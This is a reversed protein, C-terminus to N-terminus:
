NYRFRFYSLLLLVWSLFVVWSILFFLTPGWWLFLIIYLSFISSFGMSMYHLLTFDYEFKEEWFYTSGIICVPLFFVFLLTSFLSNPTILSFFTNWYLFFICLVWLSFAIYNSYRIHVSLLFILSLIIFPFFSFDWISLFLLWIVSFIVLFLTTVKSEILFQWFFQYKPMIEFLVLSSIWVICLFAWLSSIGMIYSYTTYVFILLSLIGVQFLLPHEEKSVRFFFYSFVIGTVLLWLFEKELYVQVFFSLISYLFIVSYSIILHIRTIDFFIDQKWDAIMMYWFFILFGWILTYLSIIWFLHIDWVLAFLFIYLAGYLLLLPLTISKQPSLADFSIKPLNIKEKTFFIPSFYLIFFAFLFIFIGELIYYSLFQAIFIFLLHILTILIYM